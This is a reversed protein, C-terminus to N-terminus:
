ARAAEREKWDLGEGLGGLVSDSSLLRDQATSLASGMRGMLHPLSTRVLQLFEDADARTDLVIEFPIARGKRPHLVFGEAQLTRAYPLSSVEEDEVHLSFDTVVLVELRNGEPGIHDRIQLMDTLVDV